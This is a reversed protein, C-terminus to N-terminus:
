ESISEFSSLDMELVKINAPNPLQKQVDEVASEAKQLTRAVLWLQAPNHRAYELICQKGLGANGGTVIIVKGELSPIDRSVNFAVSSKCFNM